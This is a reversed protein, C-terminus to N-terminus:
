RFPNKIKKQISEYTDRLLKAAGKAAGNLPAVVPSTHIWSLAHSEISRQGIEIQMIVVVVVTLVFTKAFFFFDSM